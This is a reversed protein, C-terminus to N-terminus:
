ARALQEREHETLLEILPALDHEKHEIPPLEGEHRMIDIRTTVAEYTRGLREAILRLPIGLEVLHCLELCDYEDWEERHHNATKRTTVQTLERWKEQARRASQPTLTIGQERLEKKPTMRIRIVDVLACHKGRGASKTLSRIAGARCWLSITENPIGTERMIDKQTMWTTLVGADDFKTIIPSTVGTAAM